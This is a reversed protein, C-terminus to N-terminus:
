DAMLEQYIGFTRDIVIEEDFEALVIERGKKGLQDRLEASVVLKELAAALPEVSKVPVLYGNEGDVVLGRCGAIDTAVIPKQMAAAEILIRPTGERYSPLVVIDSDALLPQMDDVHGLLTVGEVAGLNEVDAATLSSPNEPYPAGAILLEVKPHKQKLIKFAEILEFLGKERLLRSAFLVTIPSKHDTLQSKHDTIPIERGADRTGRGTFTGVDVGSGRILRTRERDVLGWDIFNDRDDANQYIVRVQRGSLALRYLGRVIPRVLRAKLGPDTFVHGLGTVANVISIGGVLKAAITGYLVCKITFHHVLDPRERRYLQALRGILQFEQLPNTSRVSFPLPLWRFGLSQLKSGYEGPPSVLVVDHGDERLREALSRRFNYLYWDTNAFLLIKM